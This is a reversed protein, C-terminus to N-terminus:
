VMQQREDNKEWVYGADSVNRVESLTIPVYGQNYYPAGNRVYDRGKIRGQFSLKTSKARKLPAPIGRSSVVSPFPFPSIQAHQTVSTGPTNTFCMNPASLEETYISTFSSMNAHPNTQNLHVAQPHALKELQADVVDAHTRQGAGGSVRVRLQSPHPPDLRAEPQVGYEENRAKGVWLMQEDERLYREGSFSTQVIGRAMMGLARREATKEYM